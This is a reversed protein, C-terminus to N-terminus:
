PASSSASRTVSRLKRPAPARHAAQNQEPVPALRTWAERTTYELIASRDACVKFRNQTRLKTSPIVLDFVLWGRDFHPSLVKFVERDSKDYAAVRLGGRVISVDLRLASDGSKTEWVGLYKKLKATM